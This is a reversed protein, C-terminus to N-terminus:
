RPLPPPPSSPSPLPPPLPPPPTRSWSCWLRADAPPPPPSSPPPSPPPPLFPPPLPSPSPPPSIPSSLSPFPLLSRFYLFLYSTSDVPPYSLSPIPLLPSSPLPLHHVPTQYFPLHPASCISHPPIHLQLPSPNQFISLYPPLLPAPAACRMMVGSTVTPSRALIPPSAARPPLLLAYFCLHLVPSRYKLPAARRGHMGGESPTRARSRDLGPHVRASTLMARYSKPPQTSAASLHREDGRM